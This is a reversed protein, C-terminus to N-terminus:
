PLMAKNERYYRQTLGLLKIKLDESIDKPHIRWDWNDGVTGPLNMRGSNDMQLLDQVRYIVMHSVSSAIARNMMDSVHEDPRRNLYGEAQTRQKESLDDLYWGYATPNDHTGNYLVTKKIHNHPMSAHENEGDFADQLLTMGPFGSAELLDEVEKTISGLDEAILNIDGLEEKVKKFLKMGPGKVWSGERATEAGFPIEWYSEFGRFHDLRLYDYLNFSEELRWIWWAYDNEEMYDWDYIPNGWYQGDAAFSDPPTGSVVTPTKEDDVLFLEPSTWMEVSDRAVYIPMDGFIHIYHDNAYKKLKTWQEFFWYQTIIHYYIQSNHEESFKMVRERDYYRYEEPWNYWKERNFHERLSMFQAFPILWKEHANIFNKLADNETGNKEIYKQVAKELIIRREINVKNYDIKEVNEGFDHAEVEEKTLYGDEILFDLDIFSTNGAFASYSKYPSDGYATTTLPLIQWFTQKTEVLFDVFEYARKGFTGIGYNSPLSSVHMLVGSTREMM